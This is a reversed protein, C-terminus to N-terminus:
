VKESHLLKVSVPILPYYFTDFPVFIKSSVKDYLVYFTEYCRPSVAGRGLGLSLRPSISHGWNGCPQPSSDQPSLRM